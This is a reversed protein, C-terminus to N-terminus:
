NNVLSSMPKGKWCTQRKAVVAGMGGSESVALNKDEWNSTNKRDAIQVPRWQSIDSGPRANPADYEKVGGPEARAM